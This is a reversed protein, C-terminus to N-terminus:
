GQPVSRTGSSPLNSHSRIDTINWDQVASHMQRFADSFQTVGTSLREALDRIAVCKLGEEEGSGVVSCTASHLEHSAVALVELTQLFEQFAHDFELLELLAESGEVRLRQVVERMSAEAAM